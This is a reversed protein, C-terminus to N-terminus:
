SGDAVEEPVAQVGQARLYKELSREASAPVATFWRMGDIFGRMYAQQGLDVGDRNHLALAVLVKEIYREKKDVEAEITPWAPHQYLATLNGQTIVLSRREDDTLRRRRPM